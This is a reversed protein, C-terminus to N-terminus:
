SKEPLELARIAKECAECAQWFGREYRSDPHPQDIKLDLCQEAAADRGAKFGEARAQSLEAEYDEVAFTLADEPTAHPPKPIAM